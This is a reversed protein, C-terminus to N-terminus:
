NEESAWKYFKAKETTISLTKKVQEYHENYRWNVNEM